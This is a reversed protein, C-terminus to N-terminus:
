QFHNNQGLIAQFKNKVGTSMTQSTNVRHAQNKHYFATSGLFIYKQIQFKKEEKKKKPNKHIFISIFIVNM